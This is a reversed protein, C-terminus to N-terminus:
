RVVEPMASTATTSTATPRTALRPAYPATILHGLDVTRTRGPAWWVRRTPWVLRVIFTVLAVAALVELVSVAVLGDYIVNM